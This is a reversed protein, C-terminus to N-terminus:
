DDESTILSEAYEKQTKNVLENREMAQSVKKLIEELLFYMRDGTIFNHPHTYLHVVKGHLIAHNITKEWKKVTFNIPINQRLGYRWNLSAGGPICIIGGPDFHNQSPQRPIIEKIINNIRRSIEYLRSNRGRNFTRIGDRYGIFGAERLEKIYGILNKPYIFTMGQRNKFNSVKKLCAMEREFVERTIM